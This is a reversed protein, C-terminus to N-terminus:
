STAQDPPSRRGRATYGARYLADIIKSLTLGSVNSIMDPPFRGYFREATANAEALFACVIREDMIRELEVRAQREGQAAIRQGEARATSIASTILNQAEDKGGKKRALAMIEETLQYDAGGVIEGHGPSNDGFMAKAM